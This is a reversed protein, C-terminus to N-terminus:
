EDGDDRQMGAESRDQYGACGCHCRESVYPDNTDPKHSRWVHGCECIPSRWRRPKGGLAQTFQAKWEIM